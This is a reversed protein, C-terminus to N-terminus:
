AVWWGRLYRMSLYLNLGLAVLAAPALALRGARPFQRPLVRILLHVLCPVLFVVVPLTHRTMSVYRVSSAAPLILLGLACCYLPLRVRRGADPRRLLVIELVFAALFVTLIAPLAVRSLFLPKLLHEGPQLGSERLFGFDLLSGWQPRVLWGNQQARM